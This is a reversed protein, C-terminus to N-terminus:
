IRHRLAITDGRVSLRDDRILALWGVPGRSIGRRRLDAAFEALSAAGRLEERSLLQCVLDVFTAIGNANPVQVFANGAPGLVAFRSNRTLLAATLTPTWMTEGGLWPLWREEVLGEITAYCEGAATVRAYARAAINELAGQKEDDWGLSDLAVYSASACKVIGPQSLASELQREDFGAEDCFHEELEGWGCARGL